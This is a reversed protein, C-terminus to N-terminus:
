DLLKILGYVALGGLLCAGFLALGAPLGVAIGYRPAVIGM